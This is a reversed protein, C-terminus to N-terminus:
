KKDAGDRDECSGQPPEIRGNDTGGIGDKNIIAQRTAHEVYRQRVKARWDSDGIKYRFSM